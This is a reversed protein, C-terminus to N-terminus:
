MEEKGRVASAYTTGKRKKCEGSSLESIKGDVCCFIKKPKCSKKALASSAYYSGKLKSCQSQSAKKVVGNNCCFGVTPIIGPVVPKLSRCEKQAITKEKASYYKGKSKRCQKETTEKLINNACCLGSSDTKLAPSASVFAVSFLLLCITIYPVKFFLKKFKM